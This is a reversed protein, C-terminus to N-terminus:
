IPDWSSKEGPQSPVQDEQMTPIVFTHEAKPQFPTMHSKAQASRSGHDERDDEKTALIISTFWQYGADTHIKKIFM